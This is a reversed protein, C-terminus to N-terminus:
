VATLKFVSTRTVSILHLRRLLHQGLTSSSHCTSSSQTLAPGACALALFLTFVPAYGIALPAFPGAGHGIVTCGVTLVLFFTGIFEAVYKNM